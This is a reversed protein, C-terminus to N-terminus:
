FRSQVWLLDQALHLMSVKQEFAIIVIPHASLQKASENVFVLFYISKKAFIRWILVNKLLISM